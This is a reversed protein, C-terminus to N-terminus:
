SVKGREIAEREYVIEDDSIAGGLKVQRDLRGTVDRLAEALEERTPQSEEAVVEAILLKALEERRAYEASIAAQLNRLVTTDGSEALRYDMWTAADKAAELLTKSM